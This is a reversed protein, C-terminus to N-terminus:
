EGHVGSDSSDSLDHWSPEENLTTKEYSNGNIILPVQVSYLYTFKAIETSVCYM